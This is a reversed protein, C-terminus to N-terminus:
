EIDITHPQVPFRRVIYYGIADSIHTLMKDSTKDLEGSGGKLLTVGAFDRLLMPCRQGDIRMSVAGDVTKLRSNVANLRSREPPNRSPVYSRLRGGFTQHLVKQVLTWDSGDVKASGRAGGSADGYLRILGEHKGWDAVLRNCVAVTTSNREIYVEGIVHTIGDHEQCIVAVGPSVNFDFCFILDQKPEYKCTSRVHLAPDYCYYALGEMSVWDADYEQAYTLPDLARKARALEKRAGEEGLFLHLVESTRWHHTAMDCAEEGHMAIEREAKEVRRFFHNRGGPVGECDIWGGRITMPMIHEDVAMEEVDAYESVVGGDWFGGEIRQPKDLGAVRIIAGNFLHITCTSEEIADDPNANRLAWRPTLMKLDNWFIDEAQQQVPACAFFRADPWRCHTVASKVIRRKGAETKFSRRGAYVLNM